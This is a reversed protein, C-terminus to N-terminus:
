ASVFRSRLVIDNEPARGLTLASGGLAVEYNQGEDQVLLSVQDGGGGAIPAAGRAPSPGALPGTPIRAGGGAATDGRLLATPASTVAQLPGSADQPQGCKPCFKVGPRSLVAGCHICNSM